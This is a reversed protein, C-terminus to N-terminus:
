LPESEEATVEPVALVSSVKEGKSPPGAQVVSFSVIKKVARLIFHYKVAAFNYLSKLSM